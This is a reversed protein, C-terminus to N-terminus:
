AVPKVSVLKTGEDDIQYILNYKCDTLVSDYTEGFFDDQALGKLGEVEKGKSTWVKTETNGKVAYVTLVLKNEDQVGGVYKVLTLNPTALGGTIVGSCTYKGEAAKCDFLEDVKYESAEFTKGGFISEYIQKHKEVDHEGNLPFNGLQHTLELKKGNDTFKSQFDVESNGFLGAYTKNYLQGIGDVDDYIIVKGNEARFTNEYIDLMKEESITITPKEDPKQESGNGNDDPLENEKNGNLIMNLGLGVIAILGLVIVVLLIKDKTSKPEKAKKPEEKVPEPKVEPAPAPTPEPEVPTPEPAPAPAPEAAVVEPAPEAISEVAPAPEPEAISEVAPEPAPAPAPAPEAAVVEPAPEEVKEVVAPMVGTDDLKEIVPTEDLSEIAPTENLAEVVPEENTIIEKKKEEEM